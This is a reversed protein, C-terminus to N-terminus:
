LLYDAIVECRAPDITLGIGLGWLWYDAVRVLTWSRAREANAGSAELLIQWAQWFGATGNMDELRRWLIQALGFEVDGAIIKPDIALWDERTGALVNDDYLDYHVLHSAARPALEQAADIVTELLRESFPHGSANWRQRFGAALSSAHDSLRPIGEPAPIALRRMLAGMVNLAEELPLTKLSRQGDLRELLLADSSSDAEILKVAGCGDWARLAIIEGATAGHPWAVRLVFAEGARRVPVVLSLGGHMVAGDVELSWRQCLGEVRAPLEELWPTSEAGELRKITTIFADPIEFTV